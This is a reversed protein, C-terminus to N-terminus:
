PAPSLLPHGILWSVIAPAEAARRVDAGKLWGWDAAPTQQAASVPRNANRRSMDAYMAKISSSATKEFLFPLGAHVLAGPGAGILRLGYSLTVAFHEGYSEGVATFLACQPPRCSIESGPAQLPGRKAPKM